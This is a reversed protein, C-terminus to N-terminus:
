LSLSYPDSISHSSKSPHGNHSALWFKWRICCILSNSFFHRFSFYTLVEPTLQKLLTPTNSKSQWLFCRETERLSMMIRYGDSSNTSMSPQNWTLTINLPSWLAAFQTNTNVYNKLESIILLCTVTICIGRSLPLVAWKQIRGRRKLLNTIISYPKSFVRFKYSTTCLRLWYDLICVRTITTRDLSFVGKQHTRLVAWWRCNTTKFYSFQNTAETILSPHEPNRSEVLTSRTKGLSLSSEEKRYVKETKKQTRTKQTIPKTATDNWKTASRRNTPWLLSVCENRVSSSLCKKKIAFFM